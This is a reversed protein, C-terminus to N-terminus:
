TSMSSSRRKDLPSQGLSSILPPPPPPPPLLESLYAHFLFLMLVAVHVALATMFTVIVPFTQYDLEDLVDSLLRPRLFLMLISFTSRENKESSLQAAGQPSIQSDREMLKRTLLPPSLDPAGARLRRARPPNVAAGRLSVMGKEVWQKQKEELDSWLRPIGNASSNSNASGSFSFFSFSDPLSPVEGASRSIETRIISIVPPTSLTTLYLTGFTTWFLFLVFFRYNHLGICNNVWPCHHDMRLTCRECMSCHHARPPKIVNCKKCQKLRESTSPISSASSSPETDSISYLDQDPTGPNTMVAYIYNYYINFL